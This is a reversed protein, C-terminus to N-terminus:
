HPVAAAACRPLETAAELAGQQDGVRPAALAITHWNRECLPGVRPGLVWSERALRNAMRFDGDLLRLEAMEQLLEPDRPALELAQNVADIAGDLDGRERLAAARQMLNEVAPDQHPYVQLQANDEDVDPIEPVPVPQHRSCALMGCFVITVLMWGPLRPGWAFGANDFSMM